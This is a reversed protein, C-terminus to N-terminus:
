RREKSSCLLVLASHCRRWETKPGPALSPNSPGPERFEPTARGEILVAACEKRHGGDVRRVGRDLPEPAAPEDYFVIADLPSPDRPRPPAPGGAALRIRAKGSKADFWVRTKQPPSADGDGDGGFRPALARRAFANEADVDPSPWLNAQHRRRM